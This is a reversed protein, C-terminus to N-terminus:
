ADFSAAAPRPEATRVAAAGLRRRLQKTAQSDIAPQGAVGGAQACFGGATDSRLNGSLIAEREAGDLGAGDIEELFRRFGRRRSERPYLM